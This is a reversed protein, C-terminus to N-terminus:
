SGPSPTSFTRPTSPGLVPPVRGLGALRELPGLAAVLGIVQSPSSISMLAWKIM